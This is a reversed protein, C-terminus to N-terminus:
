SQLLTIEAIQLIQFVRFGLGQLEERCDKIIHCSMQKSWNGLRM